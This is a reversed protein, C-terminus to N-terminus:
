WLINQWGPGLFLLLGAALLAPYSGVRRRAYAFLLATCLLHGATVLVRYPVYDTTGGIAFLLRYVLIPVLSFHDNYPVLLSHLGHRRNLAWLWDDFWLTSGRTLHLLLAAAAALAVGMAVLLLREPHLRVRGARDGLAAVRSLYSGRVVGPSRAGAAIWRGMLAARPESAAPRM